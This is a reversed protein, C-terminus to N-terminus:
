KFVKFRIDSEHDCDFCVFYGLDSLVDKADYLKSRISFRLVGKRDIHA